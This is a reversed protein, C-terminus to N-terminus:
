DNEVEKRKESEVREIEETMLEVLYKADRIKMCICIHHIELFGCLSVFGINVCGKEYEYCGDPNVVTHKSIFPEYVYHFNSRPIEIEMSVNEM